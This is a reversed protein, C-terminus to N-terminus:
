LRHRDYIQNLLDSYASDDTAILNSGLKSLAVVETAMTEFDPSNIARTRRGRRTLEPLAELAAEPSGFRRILAQYIRPGVNETRALRLRAILGDRGAGSKM